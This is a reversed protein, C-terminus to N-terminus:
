PCRIILMSGSPRAACGVARAVVEVATGLPQNRIQVTVLGKVNAFLIINTGTARAISQLLLRVDTRHVDIDIRGGRLRYGPNAPHPRAPGPPARDLRPRAMTAPRQVAANPSHTPASPKSPAKDSPPSVPRSPPSEVSPRRVTASRKKPTPTAPTTAPKTAGQAPQKQTDCRCGSWLAAGLLLWCWNAM